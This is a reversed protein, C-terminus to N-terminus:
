LTNGQHIDELIRHVAAIQKDRAPIVVWQLHFALLHSNEIGVWVIQGIDYVLLFLQVVVDDATGTM